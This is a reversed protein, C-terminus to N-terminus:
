EGDLLRLFDNVAERAENTSARNSLSGAYVRALVDARETLLVGVPKIFRQIREADSTPEAPM